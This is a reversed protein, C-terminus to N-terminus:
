GEPISTLQTDIVVTVELFLDKTQVGQQAFGTLPPPSGLNAIVCYHIAYPRRSVRSKRDGDCKKM